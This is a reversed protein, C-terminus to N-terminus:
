HRLNWADSAYKSWMLERSAPEPWAARQETVDYQEALADSLRDADLPIATVFQDHSRGSRYDPQRPPTRLCKSLLELDVRQLVTGHYLLHNKAIRLSNGSFKKRDITLDCIGCLEVAPQQEAVARALRTMVFQHASDVNRLLPRQELSLVVSYMWCEPGALVSAGGSCRRLVPISQQRCFDLDVEGQAKSGRGIVVVPRSFRWLRLVEEGGNEAEDLLAEDVALNLHVDELTLDLRQM